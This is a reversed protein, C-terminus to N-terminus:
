PNVTLVATASAGGYTATLTVPTAATVATTTVSFSMSTAGEPVTVSVPVVGVTPSSSTLTVVAGGTSAAATLTVTAVSATGGTVAAPNLTVSAVATTAPTTPTTPTTPAVAATAVIALARSANPVLHYEYEVDVQDGIALQDATSAAGNRKVTTFTGLLLTIATQAQTTIQVTGGQVNLASITGALDILPPTEASVITAVNNTGVKVSALDGVVIASAATRRGNLAYVTQANLTLTLPTGALPTLTLTGATTDLATIAGSTVGVPPTQAALTLATKDAPRYTVSVGDGAAVSALTTARGNLRYQTSANLTLTIATGHDTAIQVTGGTADLATITGTLVTPPPSAAVIRSAVMTARDYTVQVTDNAKLAALTSTAGDLQIVTSSSTKLTISLGNRDTIQITGATADVASLTATVRSSGAPTGTQGGTGQGGGHRAHAAAPLLLATFLAVLGRLPLRRSTISTM